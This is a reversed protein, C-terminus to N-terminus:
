TTAPGTRVVLRTARAVTIGVAVGSAATDDVTGDAHAFVPLGLVFATGATETADEIEGATMVDIPEGAAMTRVACILGSIATIAPGGILARGSSDISVAFIKGIDATAIAAALPARFSGSRNEVKDFRSM